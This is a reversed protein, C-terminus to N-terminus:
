FDLDYYDLRTLTKYKNTDNLSPHNLYIMAFRYFSKTDEM